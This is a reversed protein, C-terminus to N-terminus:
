DAAATGNVPLHDASTQVLDGRNAILGSDRIKYILARYSIKLAQATKRRNWQHARLAELIVNRELERIAEKAIGRLPVAARIGSSATGVVRKPVSQIAFADQGILVYRAICNSLERVNGPWPLNELYNLMEAGLPNCEKAFQRQYFVRFYQALSSVDERRERLKPLKIQFVSIRYYLDARFRGSDIERALDRNTSCIIRTEVFKEAEGGIRSFTGDQVFHLLKSQLGMDLEAIEDLFLTGKEALEVRGPKAANAGTFAGREYGFLESELLSGPIAACNVKVFQGEKFPSRAHMWRAVVEKGTGADGCLLVPVNTHCIKDLRKHVGSMASSRGFVIEDPPVHNSGGPLESKHKAPSPM